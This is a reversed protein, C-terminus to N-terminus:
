EVYLVGIGCGRGYDKQKKIIEISRYNNKIEDWLKSVECFPPRPHPVIHDIDHFAIMGGKGVLPSYMEFDKRVGEYTHDGDIFLFDVKKGDLIHEVQSLTGESHSDVRHLHLKQELLTFSKYLPIRWKSYGGGWGGPLDISIITASESAVRSFLFLTGGNATGIELVVKPKIENVIKLLELIEEKIQLPKLSRAADHFCFDVLDDPNNKHFKRVRLLVYPLLPFELKNHRFPLVISSIYALTRNFLVWIGEERFIEIARSLLSEQTALQKRM